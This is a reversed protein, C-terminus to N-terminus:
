RQVEDHTLVVPLHRPRKARVMTTVWALKLGLVEKYLFLIAALAQNQTSASVRRTTALMTLFQELDKENLERPHRFDHFEVYRSIWQLYAKETCLSYHRARIRNRVRELLGDMAMASRGDSSIVDLWPCPLCPTPSPRAAIRCYVDLLESQIVSRYDITLRSM